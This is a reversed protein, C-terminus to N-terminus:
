SASARAELPTLFRQVVRALAENSDLSLRMEGATLGLYARAHLQLTKTQAYGLRKAVDEITFGPDQLLRHAYLVRAAALFHRPSPLGLRAFWREFTRRDVRARAAVQQVTQLEAPARLVEEVVWRLESPLPALVGTLQDLLQRSASRAEEHALVERLRAPHDDIRTFVVARIGTQGLALLVAGTAPSLATYLILPLSPFLLRLREIEHATANGELLPDVAALEVPRTRITARAVEGAQAPVGRSRPAAARRLKHFQAAPVAALVLM